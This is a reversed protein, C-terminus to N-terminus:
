PMLVRIAMATPRLRIKTTISPPKPKRDFETAKTASAPWLKLSTRPNTHAQVAM